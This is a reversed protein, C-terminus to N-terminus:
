FKAVGRRARKRRKFKVGFRIGSIRRVRRARTRLNGTVGGVLRSRFRFIPANIRRRSIGRRILLNRITQARNTLLQNATITPANNSSRANPRNPNVPQGTSGGPSLSTAVTITLNGAAGRRILRRARRIQRNVGSRGIIVSTRARFRVTININVNNAPIIRSSHVLEITPIKRPKKVKGFNRCKKGGPGDGDCPDDGDPDSLSIPNNLSFVYPSIEPYKANKPEMSLWRGIRPDYQRFTTTYSNGSSKIEDDKEMGNFGYTSSSVRNKERPANKEVVRLSFNSNVELDRQRDYYTLKLAGM